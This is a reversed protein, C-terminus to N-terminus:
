LLHPQFAPYQMEGLMLFTAVIKTFLNVIPSSTRKFLCTRESKGVLHLKCMHVYPVSARTALNEDGNSQIRFFPSFNCSGFVIDIDGRECPLIFNNLICTYGLFLYWRVSCIVLNPLPASQSFTKLVM